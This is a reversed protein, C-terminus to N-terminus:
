KRAGLLGSVCRYRHLEHMDQEYIDGQFGVQWAAGAIKSPTSSWSWWADFACHAHNPGAVTALEELTALHEGRRLCGERAGEFNCRAWNHQASQCCYPGSRLAQGMEEENDLCTPLSEDHMRGRTWVLNTSADTVTDDWAGVGSVRYRGSTGCTGPAVKHKPCPLCRVHEVGGVGDPVDIEGCRVACVAAHDIKGSQKPGLTRSVTPAAVRWAREDPAKPNSVATGSVAAASPESAPSPREPASRRGTLWRSAGFAFVGCLVAGVWVISVLKVPVRGPATPGNQTYTIPAAPAPRVSPLAPPDAGPYAAVTVAGGFEPSSLARQASFTLELRELDAQLASMSAYRQDPRKELCRFIISALAPPVDARLTRLPAPSATVIMIHLAALTDAGFAPVGTLAEYMTAGLSWVDARHDVNKTDTLQEPSMYQPSGITATTRTLAPNTSSMVAKAIGFDLVKLVVRGSSRQALFLNAPKVDRHVIGHSHADGLGMTAQIFLRVVEVIPIPKKRAIREDLDEGELFEMVMYPTGDEFRGVDTVRAAHESSIGAAARAEREFRAAMEVDSAVGPQMMKIAVRHGLEVHTAAVVLGMGGEGLVREVLYKGGLVTGAAIAM